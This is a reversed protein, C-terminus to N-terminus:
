SESPLDVTEIVRGNRGTLRLGSPVVGSELEAASSEYVFARQDNLALAVSTGDSKDLFAGGVSPAVVGVVRLESFREPGGMSSIMLEARRTSFLGGELCSSALGAGEEEEILCGQGDTTEGTSVRITRGKAVKFLGVLRRTGQKFQPRGGQTGPSTASVPSAHRTAADERDAGRLALLVLPMVFAVVLAGGAVLARTSGVATVRM